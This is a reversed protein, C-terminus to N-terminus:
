IKVPKSSLSDYLVDLRKNLTRQNHLQEALDKHMEFILVLHDETLRSSSPTPHVHEEIDDENWCKDWNIGPDEEMTAAAFNKAIAFDKAVVFNKGPDEEMTAVYNKGSHEEQLPIEEEVICGTKAPEQSLLPTTTCTTLRQELTTMSFFPLIKEWNPSIEEEM